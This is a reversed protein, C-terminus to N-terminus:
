TEREFVFLCFDFLQTELNVNKNKYMKKLINRCQEVDYGTDLYTIYPNLQHLTITKVAKLEAVGLMKGKLRIRFVNEIVYKSPNHFRLTTFAHNDLKNNWNYYFDVTDKKLLMGM